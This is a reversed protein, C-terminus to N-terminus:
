LFFFLWSRTSPCSTPGGEMNAYFEWGWSFLWIGIHPWRTMAWLHGGLYVVLTPFVCIDLWGNHTWPDGGLNVELISTILLLGAMVDIGFISSRELQRHSNSTWLLSLLSSLLCHWWTSQSWQLLWLRIIGFYCLPPVEYGGIYKPNTM